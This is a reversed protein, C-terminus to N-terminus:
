LNTRSPKGRVTGWASFSSPMSAARFSFSSETMWSLISSWNSIERMVPRRIWGALPLVYWLSNWYTIRTVDCDPVCSELLLGTRRLFGHCIVNAALRENLTWVVVYLSQAFSQSSEVWLGSRDNVIVPGFAEPVANVSCLRRRHYPVIKALHKGAFCLSATKLSM